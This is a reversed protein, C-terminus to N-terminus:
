KAVKAVWGNTVWNTWYVARDDVVVNFPNGQAGAVLTPTGGTKVVKKVSGTTRETFYVFQDDVAVGHPNLVNSAVIEPEANCGSKACRMVASGTQTVWYVHTADVTLTRPGGQNSALTVMTTNAVGCGAKPCSRVSGLLEDIVWYVNTDDVAIGWANAQGTALTTPGAGCGSLPCAHVKGNGADTFFLTTADAALRGFGTSLPSMTAMTTATGNCGSVACRQLTSAGFNTWWAHGGASLVANPSSLGSVLVAGGNTCSSLPCSEVDGNAGTNTWYIQTADIALGQPSPESAAVIVVSCAGAECTGGLCSRACRGCNAPDAALDADCGGADIVVAGDDLLVAGDPLVTVGGDPDPTAGGPPEAGGDPSGGLGVASLGCGAGWAVSALVLMAIRRKM